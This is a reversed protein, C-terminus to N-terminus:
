RFEITGCGNNIEDNVLEYFALTYEMANKHEDDHFTPEDIIEKLEKMLAISNGTMCTEITIKGNKTYNGDCDSHMMINPFKFGTIQVATIFRALKDTDARKDFPLYGNMYFSMALIENASDLYKPMGCFELALLRTAFHLRSYSGGLHHKTKRGYIDLGM